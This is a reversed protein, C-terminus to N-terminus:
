HKRIIKYNVPQTREQFTQNIILFKTQKIQKLM